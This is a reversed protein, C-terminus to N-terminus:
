HDAITVPPPTDPPFYGVEWMARLLGEEALLAALKGVLEEATFRGSETHDHLLAQAEAVRDCIAWASTQQPTQM